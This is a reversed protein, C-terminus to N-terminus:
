ARPMSDVVCNNASPVTGTYLATAGRAYPIIGTDVLTTDTWNLREDTAYFDSPDLSPPM